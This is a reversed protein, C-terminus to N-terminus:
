PRKLFRKSVKVIEGTTRIVEAFGPSPNGWGTRCSVRGRLVIVCEGLVLDVRAVRDCVRSEGASDFPDDKIAEYWATVETDTMQRYGTPKTRWRDMINEPAKVIALDGKYFSPLSAASM